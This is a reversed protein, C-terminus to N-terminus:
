SAPFRWGVMTQLAGERQLLAPAPWLHTKLYHELDPCCNPLYCFVPHLIGQWVGTQPRESHTPTHSGSITCAVFIEVLVPGVPDRYSLCWPGPLPESSLVCLLSLGPGLQFSRAKPWALGPSSRLCLWRCWSSFNLAAVNDSREFRTVRLPDGDEM